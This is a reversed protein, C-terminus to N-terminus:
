RSGKLKSQGLAQAANFRGIPNDSLFSGMSGRAFQQKAFRRARQSSQRPLLSNSILVPPLSEKRGSFYFQGTTRSLLDGHRQVIEFAEIASLLKFGQNQFILRGTRGAFAAFQFLQDGHEAHIGGTDPLAVDLGGAAGVDFLGAIFGNGVLFSDVVVIISRAAQISFGHNAAGARVFDRIGAPEAQGAPGHEIADGLGRRL